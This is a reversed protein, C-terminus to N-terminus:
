VRAWAATPSVWRVASLSRDAGASSALADSTLISGAAHHDGSFRPRTRHGFQATLNFFTRQWVLPSLGVDVSTLIRDSNPVVLDGTHPDVLYSLNMGATVATTPSVALSAGLRTGIVDSPDVMTGAVVRSLASYYSLSMFVVLPDLRKSATVGAQFGSVYPVPAFTNGLRTPSTWGVSGVFNPIRDSEQM